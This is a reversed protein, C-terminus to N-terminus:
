RSYKYFKTLNFRARIFFKDKILMDKFINKNFAESSMAQSAYAYSVLSGVIM